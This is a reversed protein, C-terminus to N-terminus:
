VMQWVQVTKDFSGSAIRKKDPSWAVAAVWNSHGQYTFALSGDSANWVQVTKDRSGSAIWKGDPSWAVANVWSSHGKYTFVHSGNSANWVQVTKDTSCSATRKGDPSWAVANVKNSHGKYTFVHSGDSANWVQVTKDASGSAIRKGDPSWAVTYVWDSHGKYTFVHSGDNTNWVQVTNDASGSAIRKGDPSWAVSAVYNIHGRYTFVHSGDNANWVQVTNYGYGSASAIWKGDPSWAVSAVYNTHGQYTFVHSGDSANWVQVTKDRSGSAIWKGDPSWAVADVYNSHGRYTFLQRFSSGVLQQSRPVPGTATFPPPLTTRTPPPPTELRSSSEFPRPRETPLLDQSAQELATAFASVSAFREEPQKALATLVMHDIDPSLLPVKERLSPPPVTLHQGVLEPFSGHFPRDGSLWEYVVIGLAYQDSAARPKGQIQEPASYAMTGAMEKTSQYRSSQAILAIGFDSLLITGHEDLLMNEPKIDRHIVNRDHATPYSAPDQHEPAGVGGRRVCCAGKSASREGSALTKEVRSGCRDKSVDMDVAVKSDPRRRGKTLYFGVRITAGDGQAKCRKPSGETGGFTETQVYTGM